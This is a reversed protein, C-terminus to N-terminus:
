PPNPIIECLSCSNSVHIRSGLYWRCVKHQEEGYKARVDLTANQAVDYKGKGIKVNGKNVGREWLTVQTSITLGGKCVNHPVLHRPAPGPGMGSFGRIWDDTCRRWGPFHLTLLFSFLSLPFFTVAFYM